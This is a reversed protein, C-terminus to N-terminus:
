IQEYIKIWYVNSNRLINIIVSKDIKHAILNPKGNQFIRTMNTYFYLTDESVIKPITKYKKRYKPNCKWSNM